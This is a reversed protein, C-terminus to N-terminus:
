MHASIKLSYNAQPTGFSQRCAITEVTKLFTIVIISNIISLHRNCADTGFGKIMNKYAADVVGLGKIVYKSVKLM